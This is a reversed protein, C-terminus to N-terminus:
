LLSGYRDGSIVQSPCPFIEWVDSANALFEFSGWEHFSEWSEEDKSRAPEGLGSSLSCQFCAPDVSRAAGNGPFPTSLM